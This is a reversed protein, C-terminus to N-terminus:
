LNLANAINGVTGVVAGVQPLGVASALSAGVTFIDGLFGGQQSVNMNAILLSLETKKGSLGIVHNPMGDLIEASRSNNVRIGSLDLRINYTEGVSNQYQVIQPLFGPVIEVVPFIFDTCSEKWSSSIPLRGSYGLTYQSYITSDPPALIKRKKREVVGGKSSKRELPVVLPEDEDHIFQRDGPHVLHSVKTVDRGGANFQVYRTYQLFPSRNGEGGMSVQGDLVPALTRLASNWTATVIENSATANFDAVSGNSMSGDFINPVPDTESQFVPFITDNIVVNYNDPVVYGKFTGLVPIYILQNRPSNYSATDYPLFMMRLNRLNENLVPTIKMIEGVDRPFCNSGVLFPQFGGPTTQPSLTQALCQSDAFYAWLLQQRVAVCFQTYTCLLGQTYTQVAEDTTTPLAQIAAECGNIYIEVMTHIIETFDIFKFIPTKKGNYMEQTFMPLNGLGWNSTSDGSSILVFSSSRPDEDTFPTLTALFPSLFPNELEVTGAPGSQDGAGQGFFNDMRAFASADFRYRTGLGSNRVLKRHKETGSLVNMAAGYAESIMQDTYTGPAVQTAWGNSLTNIPNYMYYTFNGDVALASGPVAITYGTSNYSVTGGGKPIVKPSLAGFIESMFALRSAATGLGSQAISAIDSYLQSYIAYPDSVGRALALSVFSVPIFNFATASFVSTINISSAVGQALMLEHPKQVVKKVVKKVKVEKVVPKKVLKAGKKKGGKLLKKNEKEM